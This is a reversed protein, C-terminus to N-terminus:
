VGEILLDLIFVNIEHYTLQAPNKGKKICHIFIYVFDDEQFFLDLDISYKKAGNKFNRKFELYNKYTLYKFAKM